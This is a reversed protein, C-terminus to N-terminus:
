RGAGEHDAQYSSVITIGLYRKQNEDYIVGPLERFRRNFAHKPVMATRTAGCWAVHERWMQAQSVALSSGNSGPWGEVVATCEEKFAAVTDQEVAYQSTKWAVAAPCREGEAFYDALGAALWALIGEAECSSVRDMLNKDRLEPAITAGCPIVRFRRRMAEDFNALTPMENTAVWITWTVPAEIEVQSYLRNHSLSNEGTLRKVQGEDIHMREATETITVLRKGQISNEVRAHRDNKTTAILAGSSSHALPGLVARAADLLVSKGSATPGAMFIILQERNHGLLSYGLMKRMYRYIDPDEGAVHWALQEFEPCRAEPVYASPLCYTLMARPDWPYVLGRRTDLIGSGMNLYEPWRDALAAEPTGLLGQMYSAVANKGAASRLRHHYKHAAEFPAWRQRFASLRQAENAGNLELALQENIRLRCQSLVQIVRDAYSTILREIYNSDDRLLCRGDWIFWAAVGKEPVYFLEGPREDAILQGAERDSVPLGEATAGLEIAGNRWSAFFRWTGPDGRTEDNM